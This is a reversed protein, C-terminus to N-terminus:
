PAPAPSAAPSAPSTYFSGLVVRNGFLGKIGEITKSIFGVEEGTNEEQSYAADTASKGGGGQGKGNEFARAQITKFITFLYRCLTLSLSESALKIVFNNENERSGSISELFGAHYGRYFIDGDNNNVYNKANYLFWVVKDFTIQNIEGDKSFMKDLGVINTTDAGFLFISVDDQPYSILLTIIVERYMYFIKNELTSSNLAKTESYGERRGVGVASDQHSAVGGGPPSFTKVKPM